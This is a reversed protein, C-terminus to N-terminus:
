NAKININQVNFFDFIRAAKYEAHAVDRAKVEFTHKVCCAYYDTDYNSERRWVIATFKKFGTTAWNRNRKMFDIKLPSKIKTERNQYCLYTNRLLNGLM